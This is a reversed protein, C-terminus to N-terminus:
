NKLYNMKLSKKVKGKKSKVKQLKYYYEKKYYYM